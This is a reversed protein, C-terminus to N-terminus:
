EVHGSPDVTITNRTTDYGTVCAECSLALTLFIFSLVIFERM